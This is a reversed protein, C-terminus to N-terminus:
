ESEREREREREKKREKEGTILHLLELDLQSTHLSQTTFKTIFNRQYTYLQVTSLTLMLHSLLLLM